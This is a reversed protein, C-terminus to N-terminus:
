QGKRSIEYSRARPSRLETIRQEQKAIDQDYLKFDGGIFGWHRSHDNYPRWRRYFLQNRLVIATRLKEGDAFMPGKDIPVGRQWAAAVAVLVEQEDIKLMYDGPPLGTIQLRHVDPAIPLMVDAAHFRITDAKVSIVTLKMGASGVVKGARDLTVEWRHPEFGLQEELAKGALAYGAETLLIGNTSLQRNADATKAAELPHFLDVCRIKREEAFAKLAKTFQELHRNHETPDPFPRGLDEHYTPTVIVLRAKLPALAKLLTDYDKLFDPLAQPGDFSENMGYALFIVTPKLAKTEKELRALGQPVQFGATRASGRVTDGSWGMYRFTLGLNPFRRQLRTEFHAHWQDNEVFGNGVLLVREGENLAFVRDAAVAGSGGFLMVIAVLRSLVKMVM